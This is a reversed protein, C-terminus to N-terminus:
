YQVILISDGSSSSVDSSSSSKNAKSVEDLQDKSSQQEKGDNMVVGFEFRKETIMITDTLVIHNENNFYPM